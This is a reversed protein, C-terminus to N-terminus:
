SKCKIKKLLNHIQPTLHFIYQYKDNKKYLIPEFHNDNKNLVFLVRKNPQIEDQLDFGWYLSQDYERFVIVQIDLYDSVIKWEINGAWKEPSILSNKTHEYNCFYQYKQKWMDFTFYSHLVNRLNYSICYRENQLSNRYSKSIIFLISHYFCSGDGPIDTYTVWKDHNFLKLQKYPSHSRFINSLYTVVLLTVFLIIILINKM